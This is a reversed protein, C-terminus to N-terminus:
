EGSAGVSTGFIVDDDRSDGSTPAGAHGYSWLAFETPYYSETHIGLNRCHAQTISRQKGSPRELEHATYPMLDPCDHMYVGISGLALLSNVLQPVKDAYITIPYRLIDTGEQPIVIVLPSVM